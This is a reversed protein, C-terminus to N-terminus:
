ARPNHGLWQCADWCVEPLFYPLALVGRCNNDKGTSKLLEISFLMKWYSMSILLIVAPYLEVITVHGQETAALLIPFPHHCTSILGPFSTRRPL